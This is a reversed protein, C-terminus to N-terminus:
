RRQGMPAKLVCVPSARPPCESLSGASSAQCLCRCACATSFGKTQYRKIFIIFLDPSSHTLSSVNRGLLPQWSWARNEKKKEQLPDRSPAHTAVCDQTRHLAGDTRNSQGAPSGDMSWGDHSVGGRRRAANSRNWQFTSNAKGSWARDLFRDAATSDVHFAV